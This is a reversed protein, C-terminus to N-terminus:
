ITVAPRYIWKSLIISLEYLIMLPVAMLVQSFCDPSPTLIASAAFIVIIAHKRKAILFQPSAVGIKALFAIVLPMEFIIGCTLVLNGVFSIYRGITIMPEVWPSAFSLFFRMMIPLLAFYGFACGLFFIALSLPAFVRIYKREPATLATAVFQWVEFLVYPMSLIMGGVLALIMFMGFAEGPSTFVVKGVPRILFAVIDKAFLFVLGSVALICIVSRIIRFRLEELHDIFTLDKDKKPSAM